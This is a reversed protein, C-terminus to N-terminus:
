ITKTASFFTDYFITKQQLEIMSFLGQKIIIKYDSLKDFDKKLISYKNEKRLFDICTIHFSYIDFFKRSSWIGIIIIPYVCSLIGLHNCNDYIRLLNVFQHDRLSNFNFSQYGKLFKAEWYVIMNPTCAFGDFPNQVFSMAVQKPPDSIKHAFAGEQSLSNKIILNLDSEKM